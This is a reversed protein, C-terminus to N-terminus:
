GRLINKQAPSIDEQDSMEVLIRRILCFISLLSPEPLAVSRGSSGSSMTPNTENRLNPENSQHQRM